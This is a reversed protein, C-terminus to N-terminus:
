IKVSDPVFQRYNGGYKIIERVITSSIFSCEPSSMLFVTELSDNLKQNLMSITREFDFDSNNRLGRVIYKAHNAKCFDSTLGSYSMVKVKDTNNFSAQLWEIRQELPFFYKKDSNIGIAIIVEDFLDISRQIIDVHGLTIPDYSGPVVAIRKEKQM